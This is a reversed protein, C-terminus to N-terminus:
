TNHTLSLVLKGVSTPQVSQVLGEFLSSGFNSNESFVLALKVWNGSFLIKSFSEYGNM